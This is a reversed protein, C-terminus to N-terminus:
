TYLKRRSLFLFLKGLALGLSGGLAGGGIVDFPFHVGVYVQSFSILAAWILLALRSGPTCKLSLVVFLYTAVAFHNAAHSSTFSYGRGCPVRLIVMNELQPDNCPRLRQVNKKILTSSTYDSLGVALALGLLLIGGKMNKFNQWVFAVVFLYFPAWFWKERFYPLIADFVRNSLGTNIWYFIEQDLTQWYNM